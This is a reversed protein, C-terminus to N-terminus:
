FPVDAVFTRGAEFTSLIAAHRREGFEVRSIGHDGQRYDAYHGYQNNCRDSEDQPGGKMVPSFSSMLSLGSLGFRFLTALVGAITATRNATYM